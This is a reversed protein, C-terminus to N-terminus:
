PKALLPPLITRLQCRKQRRPSAKNPILTERLKCFVLGDQFIGGPPGDDGRAVVPDDKPM